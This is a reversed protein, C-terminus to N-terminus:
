IIILRVPINKRIGKMASNVSLVYFDIVLRLITPGIDPLDSVDLLSPFSAEVIARPREEIMGGDTRVEENDRNYAKTEM